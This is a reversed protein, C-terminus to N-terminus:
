IGLAGRQAKVPQLSVLLNVAVVAQLLGLLRQLAVRACMALRHVDITEFGAKHLMGQALEELTESM